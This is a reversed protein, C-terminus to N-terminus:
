RQPRWDPLRRKAAREAEADSKGVACGCSRAIGFPSDLAVLRRSGCRCEVLVRRDRVELVTWHGIVTGIALSM